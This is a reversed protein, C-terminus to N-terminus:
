PITPCARSWPRCQRSRAILSCRIAMPRPAHRLRPGSSAVPAPATKSMMPQGLIQSVAEALIRGVIDNSGGPAAAVILRIPRTPRWAGQASLISPALGASLALGLATRRHMM